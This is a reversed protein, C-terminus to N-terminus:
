DDRVANLAAIAQTMGNDPQVIVNDQEEDPSAVDVAFWIIGASWLLAMWRSKFISSTRMPVMCLDQWAIAKLNGFSRQASIRLRQSIPP